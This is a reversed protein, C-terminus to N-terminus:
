PHSVQVCSKAKPETGPSAILPFFPFAKIHTTIPVDPLWADAGSVPEGTSLKRSAAGEKKPAGSVMLFVEDESRDGPLVNITRKLKSIRGSQDLSYHDYVIWDGAEDQETVNVASIRGDVYNATAVVLASLSEVEAKWEAEEHFACWQAHKNDELLYLTKAVHQCLFLLTITVGWFIRM